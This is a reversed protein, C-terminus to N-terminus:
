VEKYAIKGIKKYGRDWLYNWYKLPKNKQYTGLKTTKGINSKDGEYVTIYIKKGKLTDFYDLINKIEMDDKIVNLVNSCIVIDFENNNPIINIENVYKDYNILNSGFMETHKKYHKGAGYNLIISETGKLYKLLYPLRNSNGNSTLLSKSNM